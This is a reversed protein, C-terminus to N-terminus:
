RAIALKEVLDNAMSNSYIGYANVLLGRVGRTPSSIAYLVAEDGPDSPGEFRFVKDVQFEKPSLTYNASRCELCDELLNFDDTYGEERLAVIAGTMTPYDETHM